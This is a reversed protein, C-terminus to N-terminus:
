SNYAKAPEYIGAFQMKSRMKMVVKSHIQSV